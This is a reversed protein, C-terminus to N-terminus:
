VSHDGHRTPLKIFCPGNQPGVVVYSQDSDGLMYRLQSRAWCMYRSALGANSPMEYTAYTAALFAANATSGLSGSASNYARGRPTYAVM